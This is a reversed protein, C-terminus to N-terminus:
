EHRYPLSRLRNWWKCTILARIASAGSTNWEMASIAGENLSREPDPILLDPDIELKSGLGQCEPCAGHPTNFSFTRPEIEPLTSGHEPCALHESFFLDQPPDMSLNQITLYGEGV